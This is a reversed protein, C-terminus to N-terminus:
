SDPLPCSRSFLMLSPLQAPCLPPPPPPFPLALLLPLPLTSLLLPLLPSLFLAFLRVLPFPFPLPPLIPPTYPTTASDSARLYNLLSVVEPDDLQM